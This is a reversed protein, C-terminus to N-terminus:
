NNKMFEELARERELYEQYVQPFNRQLEALSAACIGQYNGWQAKNQRLYEKYAADGMQQRLDQQAPPLQNQNGANCGPPLPIGASQLQHKIQNERELFMRYDEPFMQSLNRLGTGCIGQFNGTQQFNRLLNQIREQAAGQNNNSSGGSTGGQHNGGEHGSNGGQNNGGSSNGGPNNGGNDGGSSGGSSGPANGGQNNGGTGQNGGQGGQPLGSDANRNLNIRLEGKIRTAGQECVAVKAHAPFPFIQM